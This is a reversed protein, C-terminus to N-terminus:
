DDTSEIEIGKRNGTEELIKFALQGGHAHKILNSALESVVLLLEENEQESFGVIRTFNRLATKAAFADQERQIAISVTREAM